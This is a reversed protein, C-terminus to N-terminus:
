LKGKSKERLERIAKLEGEHESAFKELCELFMQSISSGKAQLLLRVEEVLEKKEDPLYLHLRM